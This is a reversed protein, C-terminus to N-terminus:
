QDLSRRGVPSRENTRAAGTAMFNSGKVHSRRVTQFNAKIAWSSADKARLICAVMSVKIPGM